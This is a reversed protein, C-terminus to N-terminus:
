DHMRSERLRASVLRPDDSPLVAVLRSLVELDDRGSDTQAFAWLADAGGRDLLQHRLQAALEDRVSRLLPSESRPLLPGTYLRGADVVNGAALLRRVSIFDADVDCNLRYPKALVISGLQARLRHIEARLTVPNGEEGYLHYSCQEATLGQPHLALLALIEAHRLSLPAARGDIRAQPHEAGLLRLTLLPRRFDPGLLDLARVLIAEGLSEAVAIRGGPLLLSDGDEPLTIRGPWWGAPTSSIVRGARSVLAGPQGGLGDLHRQYRGRVRDDRRQMELTLHAEALRAAADALSVTAPHLERIVASIDVCGIIRGSDPDTVPAATCSWPHLVRALHEASYVYAPGGSTLATGIGNTGMSTESWCFGAMLGISEAPRRLSASGEAWLVHGDGDTIVVMHEALDTMGALVGRLLPLHPDLPHAARADCIQDSDYVQPAADVEPSVGAALSRRWSASILGRPGVRPLLGTLVADHVAALRRAQSPPDACAHPRVQDM